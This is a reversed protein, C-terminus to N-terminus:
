RSWAGQLSAPLPQFRPQSLDRRYTVQSQTEIDCGRRSSQRSPLRREAVVNQRTQEESSRETEDESVVQWPEGEWPEELYAASALLVSIVKQRLVRKLWYLGVGLCLLSVAIMFRTSQGQEVQAFEKLADKQTESAQYYYYYYSKAESEGRTAAAMLLFESDPKGKSDILPPLCSWVMLFYVYVWCCCEPCRPRRQPVTKKPAM